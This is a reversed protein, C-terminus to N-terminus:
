ADPAMVERLFTLWKRWMLIRLLILVTLYIKMFCDLNAKSPSLRLPLCILNRVSFGCKVNSIMPPILLAMKFLTAMNTFQKLSGNAGMYKYIAAATKKEVVFNEPETLIREELLQKVQKKLKDSLYEIENDFAEMFDKLESTAHILNFM